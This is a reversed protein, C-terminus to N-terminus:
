QITKNTEDLKAFDLTEGLLRKVVCKVTKPDYPSHVTMSDHNKDEPHQDVFVRVRYKELRKCKPM